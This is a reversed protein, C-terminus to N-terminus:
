KFLFFCIIPFEKSIWSNRLVDLFDHYWRGHLTKHLQQLQKNYEASEGLEKWRKKQDDM